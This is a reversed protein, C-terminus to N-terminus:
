ALIELTPSSISTLHNKLNETPTAGFSLFLKVVSDNIEKTLCYQHLPTIGDQNKINSDGENQLLFEIINDEGCRAAFHLPTWGVRDQRNIHGGNKVICQVVEFNPAWRVPVLTYHLLNWGDSNETCNINIGNDIAKQIANIDGDDEFVIDGFIRDYDTNM